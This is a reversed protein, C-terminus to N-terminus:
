ARASWPTVSWATASTIYGLMKEESHHLHWENSYPEIEVKYKHMLGADEVAAMCLLACDVGVGKVKGMNMHPTGLWKKAAEAIKKGEEPTIM